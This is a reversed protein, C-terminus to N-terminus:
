AVSRPVATTPAGAGSAAAEDLGRAIFEAAQASVEAPDSWLTRWLGIEDRTAASAVDASFSEFTLPGSYGSAALAGFLGSWDLSGTGLRGRHNEALHLYGLLPGADRVAHALSPEELNAHYTDIHLLVNDAGLVELEEIFEATQAATNLLNSEYRNVYELGILVGLGRATEAVRHLVALSNARSAPTAPHAYKTMASFTVGGVYGAGIAAAYDVADTLQQEGRASVRPDDTNIDTDVGLALSVVADLGSAELLTRTFAANREDPTPLPIEILDFGAEAAGAIASRAADDSWGATWTGAHVGIPNTKGAARRAFAIRPAVLTGSGPDAGSATTM